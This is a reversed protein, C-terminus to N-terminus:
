ELSVRQTPSPLPRKCLNVPTKWPVGVWTVVPAGHPQDEQATFNRGLAPQVRLTPLLKHDIELAPVQVPEGYGAINTATLMDKFIGLSAVGPLDALQQYQQPSVAQVNGQEIRGLAALQQPAPYPLPRLLVGDILTFVASASGVGLALVGAALLLFGPKRLSARWARWIEALWINM